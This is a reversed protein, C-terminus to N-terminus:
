CIENANDPFKVAYQTYQVATNFEFIYYLKTDISLLKGDKSCWNSSKTACTTPIEDECSCCCMLDALKNGFNFVIPSDFYKSLSKRARWKYAQQIPDLNTLPNATTFVSNYLSVPMFSYWEFVKWPYGAIGFDQHATSIDPDNLDKNDFTLETRASPRATIFTM